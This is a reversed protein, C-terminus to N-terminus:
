GDKCAAYSFKQDIGFMVRFVELELKKNTWMIRSDFKAKTIM